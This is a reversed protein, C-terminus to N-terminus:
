QPEVWRTLAQFRADKLECIFGARQAHHNASSFTVPPLIGGSEWNRITEMAEIFSERTPDKGSRRLGEIALKGFVYGYLSYRNLPHGPEYKQMLRRYEAIGPEQSDNPDPYYCFGLTGEAYGGPVNLYQEDTLPGSSVMRVDRWGIKAKAEMVRKAQPPYLALVIADPATERMAALATSLDGPEMTDVSHTGTVTYGFEAAHQQLSTLFFQGYINADHIIGIKKFGRTKALYRLMIQSEGAYRPYSTFVYRANDTTILATHPFLYPVKKEAAYAALTVSSPGGFNLLAFVKDEEVLRKANAIAESVTSCGTRAYMQPVLTRGQVGGAENADKISLRFGLNEEDLSFCNSPAEIGLLIRERTVGQGNALAAMALAALIMRVAIKSTYDVVDM